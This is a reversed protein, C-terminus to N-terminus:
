DTHTADTHMFLVGFGAILEPIAQYHRFATRVRGQPLSARGILWSKSEQASMGAEADISADTMRGFFDRDAREIADMWRKDWDPNLPKMGQDGAALAIGAAVAREIRLERDAPTAEARAIIRERVEPNPHDMGPIPPEHSLGGSGIVLTRGPLTDLFGGLAEGLQLCRKLRPIAPPAVANIFIPVVPPSQLGGWLLHLPQVIGHDVRMRRSVAPDFGADMLHTALALAVPGDVNLPGSPMLYDGVSTAESGICLPPMLENFFGNYHDPGILIVRDPAWARVGARTSEIAALLSQEVTASLSALGLLPTHSLGLFARAKSETSM